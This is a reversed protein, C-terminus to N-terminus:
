TQRKRKIRTFMTIFDAIQGVNEEYSTSHVRIGQKTLIGRIAKPLALLSPLTSDDILALVIPIEKNIAERIEKRVWDQELHIREAAFTKETVILVFVSFERLHKLISKEFDPDDIYRDIFINAELIKSIKEQLLFAISWDRRRYSFFITHEPKLDDLAITLAHRVYTDREVRLTRSLIPIARKDKLLGLGRAAGFRLEEEPSDLYTTLKQFVLLDRIINTSFGINNEGDVVIFINLATIARILDRNIQAIELQYDRLVSAPTPAYMRWPQMYMFAALVELGDQIQDFTFVSALQAVETELPKLRQGQYIRRAFDQFITHLLESLGEDTDMIFQAQDNITRSVYMLISLLWPTRIM